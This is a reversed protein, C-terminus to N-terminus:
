QESVEGGQNPNAAAGDAPRQQGPQPPTEDAIRSRRLLNRVARAVERFSAQEIGRRAIFVADWGGTLPRSRVAERLRRKVKNRVVANGIRKSVVFAFRSHGLGNPLYRIVLLRNVASSGERHIQSHRKQGSIRSWRQM